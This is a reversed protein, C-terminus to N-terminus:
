PKKYIVFKGITTQLQFNYNNVYNVYNLYFEPQIGNYITDKIFILYDPKFEILYSKLSCNQWWHCKEYIAQGNDQPILVGESIALKSGKPIKNSIYNSVQFVESQKYNKRNEMETTTNFFQISIFLLFLYSYFIFLGYKLLKNKINFTNSFPLFLTILFLSLLPTLYNPIIFLGSNRCIIFIIIPLFLLNIIFFKKLTNKKNTFAILTAIPYSFIIVKLFPTNWITTAWAKFLDIGKLVLIGDSGHDKLLIKQANIFNIPHRFLHPYVIFTIITVLLFSFPIITILIKKTFISRWFSLQNKEIYYLYFILITPFVLIIFSQKALISLTLSIISLIYWFSMKEKKDKIFNILFIQTLFLFLLGTTEPKIDTFFNAKLPPFLYLLTGIFAIINKDFIKKLLFFLVICSSLSILFFITKVLFIDFSINNINFISQLLNIPKLILYNIFFYSWGYFRSMYGSQLNYTKIHQFVSDVMLSADIEFAAITEITENMILTQPFYTSFFAITIILLYIKINIKVKTIVKLIKM